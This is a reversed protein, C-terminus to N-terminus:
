GGILRVLWYAAIGAALSGVMPVRLWAALGTVLGAALPPWGAWVPPSGSLLLPKIALATFVAAPVGALFLQVRPPLEGRLLVLPMVRTLITVLAMGAITWWVTM